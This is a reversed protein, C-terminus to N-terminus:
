AALTTKSKDLYAQRKKEGLAKVWRRYAVGLRDSNVHMEDTVDLPLSFPRQAEVIWRDQEGFVMAQRELIKSEPIDKGYNFSMILWFIAQNEDVPTLACWTFWHEEPGTQKDSYAVTPSLCYYHYRVSLPIGRADAYPQVVTFETTRLENAKEIVKYNITTDPEDGRGNIGPHVHPFHSADMFNDMCRLANAQYSYPGAHVKRYDANEWQPVRPIDSEPEGISVWIFGYKETTKYRQVVSKQPTSQDPHAPVHVCQGESNFHWGHYACVIKCDKVKGLSLPTGRHACYDQWANIEGNKSRWLVIKEGLLKAAVPKEATVDTSSAVVHWQDILAMYDLANKDWKGDYVRAFMPMTM